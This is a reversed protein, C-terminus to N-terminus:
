KRVVLIMLEYYSMNNALEHKLGGLETTDVEEVDEDISKGYQGGFARIATQITAVTIPRLDIKGDGVQGIEEQLCEEFMRRAQYLLDKTHVFFLTQRKLRSIIKAAVVTKGAGTAMELIGRKQKVAERVAEKQYDRLELDHTKWSFEPLSGKKEEQTLTEIGHEDLIAQVIPLLGSPFSLERRNFLHKCGDWAGEIFKLSYEHGNVPFSLARDIQEVPISAGSLRSTTNGIILRLQNRLWRNRYIELVEPPADNPHMFFIRMVEALHAIHVEWRKQKPNWRRSNLARIQAVLNADFAFKLGITESDVLEIEASAM